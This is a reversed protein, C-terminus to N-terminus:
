LSAIKPPDVFDENKKMGLPARGLIKLPLISYLCKTKIGSSWTRAKLISDIPLGELRIVVHSAGLEPWIGLGCIMRVMPTCIRAQTGPGIM